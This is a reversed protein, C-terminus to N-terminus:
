TCEYKGGKVPRHTVLANDPKDSIPRHDIDPGHNQRRIRGAQFPMAEGAADDAIRDPQVVTKREAQAIDLINQGLAPDPDAVLRDPDPTQPKPRLERGHDPPVAGVRGVFPMHVLHDDGDAAPFVPKPARNVGVPIGKFNQDLAAAIGSRGPAKQLFQHLPPAIGPNEHGVPQAAVTGCDPLKTGTNVMPSVLPQVVSTFGGMAVGASPLLHHTPEFRGPLHLHKQGDMVLSGSEEAGFAM